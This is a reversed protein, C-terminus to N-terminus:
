EAAGTTRFRGQAQPSEAVSTRHQGAHALAAELQRTRAAVRGAFQVQPVERRNALLEANSECHSKRRQGGSLITIHHSIGM